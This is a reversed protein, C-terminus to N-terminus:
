EMDPHYFHATPRARAPRAEEDEDEDECVPLEEPRKGRAKGPMPRAGGTIVHEMEQMVEMFSSVGKQEADRVGLVKQCRKPRKCEGTDNKDGDAFLGWYVNKSKLKTFFTPKGATKGTGSEYAIGTLVDPGKNKFSRILDSITPYLRQISTALEPTVGNICCLQAITCVKGSLYANRTFTSRKRHLAPDVRVLTSSDRRASDESLRNTAGVDPDIGTPQYGEISIYGHIMAAMALSVTSVHGGDTHHTIKMRHLLTSRTAPPCQEFASCLGAVSGFRLAIREAVIPTIRNGMIHLFTGLVEVPADTLQHKRPTVASVRQLQQQLTLERHHELQFSEDNYRDAPADTPRVRKKKTTTTAGVDPDQALAEGQGDYYQDVKEKYDDWVRSGEQVLALMDTLLILVTELIHRTRRVRFGHKEHAVSMALNVEDEPLLRAHDQCDELIIGCAAMPVSKDSYALAVQAPYRSLFKGTFDSLTMREDKSVKVKNVYKVFDMSTETGREAFPLMEFFCNADNERADVRIKSEPRTQYRATSAAVGFLRSVSKPHSAAASLRTLVRDILTFWKPINIRFDEATRADMLAASAADGTPHKRTARQEIWKIFCHGIHYSWPARSVHSVAAARMFEFSWTPPQQQQQKFLTARLPPYHSPHSSSSSGTSSSTTTTTSDSDSCEIATTSQDSWVHRLLQSDLDLDDMKLRLILISVFRFLIKVCGFDHVRAM